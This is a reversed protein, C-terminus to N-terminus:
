TISSSVCFANPRPFSVDCFLMCRATLGATNFNQTPDIDIRVGPGFIGIVSKSFDGCILTSAPATKTAHAVEGYIRGDDWLFRGGGTARERSALLEQTGPHGVWQLASEQAGANLVTKRMALIGAYALSTGSQSGIGQTTLMGLPQAGGTGAFYATDLLEGVAIQLATKIFPGAHKSQRILQIPFNVIAIGTRQVLSASGLAPTSDSQGSGSEGIWGATPNTATYPITVNADLNTILTAGSAVAVSWGRMSHEPAEVDLGVAYGGKSGSSTTMTRLETLPIWSRFPDWQQGGSEAVARLFDEDELSQQQGEAAARFLRGINLQAAGKKM